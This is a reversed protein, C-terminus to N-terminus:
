QEVTKTSPTVEFEWSWDDNEGNLEIESATYKATAIENPQLELTQSGSYEVPGFDWTSFSFRVIFIGAVTDTNQLDVCGIPCTIEVIEDQIVEDGITLTHRELHTDTEIYSDIVEYSLTVEIFVPEPEPEPESTAPQEENTPLTSEDNNSPSSSQTTCATLFLLGIILFSFITKM